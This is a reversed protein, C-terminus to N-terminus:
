AEGDDDSEPEAEEPEPEARKDSAEWIGGDDESATDDGMGFTDVVQPLVGKRSLYLAQTKTYRMRVDAKADQFDWPQIIILDGERVWQWRRMKGPIRALRTEGDACVARIRRGGLIQDAIAFMENIRTNPTKVRIKGSDADGSELKALLEEDVVEERRRGM